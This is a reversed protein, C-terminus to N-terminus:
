ETQIQKFQQKIGVENRKRSTIKSVIKINPLDISFTTM